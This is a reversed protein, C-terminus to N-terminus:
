PLCRLTAGLFGLIAWPVVLCAALLIAAAAPTSLQPQQRWHSV